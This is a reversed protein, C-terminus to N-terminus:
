VCFKACAGWQGLKRMVKRVRRWGLLTVDRKLLRWVRRDGYMPSETFIENFRKFQDLEESSESKHWYYVSSRWISLVRVKRAIPLVSGLTITARRQASPFYHATRGLFGPGGANGQRVTRFFHSSRSRDRLGFNIRLWTTEFRLVHRNVIGM